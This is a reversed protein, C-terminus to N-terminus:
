SPGVARHRAVNRARWRSPKGSAAHSQRNPIRRLLTQTATAGFERTPLDKGLSTYSVSNPFVQQNVLKSVQDFYNFGGAATVSLSAISEAQSALVSSSLCPSSSSARVQVCAANTSRCDILRVLVDSTEATYPQEGTELKQPSSGPLTQFTSSAPGVL